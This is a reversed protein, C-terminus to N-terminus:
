PKKQEAPKAAPAGEAGKMEGLGYISIKSNGYQNGVIIIQELIFGPAALKQYFDLNDRTVTIGAPLNLSGALLGPDGFFMLLRGKDSFVQVNYFMADAVYIRGTNDVAVGKPRGFEGFADGLKGYSALLHGDKDIKTVNGHGVNSVYIFDNADTTMNSPMYLLDKAFARVLEGSKRDIVKIENSLLDLAYVFEADVAVDVPKIQLEKGYARLYNGEADYMLIERRNTDAVFLNGASDLTLNIPKKLKGINVDGKLREFTKAKLDIIEIMNMGSDCVYIKGNGAAVGYPKGIPRVKSEESTGTLLLSFSSKKEEVDSSDNISMLFQVKPPNPAPPFFVPGSKAAKQTSCGTLALAVLLAPFSFRPAIRSIRALLSM